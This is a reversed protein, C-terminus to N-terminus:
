QGDTEPQAETEQLDLVRVRRVRNREMHTVIFRKGCLELSDGQEPIRGLQDIFHAAIIKYYDTDMGDCTVRMHEALEDLSIDGSVSWTGDPERLVDPEENDFEDQINGVIAEVIDEMTLIGQWVGYEDIVVCFQQHRKQMQQMLKELPLTEPAYMPQRVLSRLNTCTRCRLVDRMHVFGTINDRNDEYVPFRTHGSEHAEELVEDRLTEVDFAIVDIRHLMIDKATKQYFSFINDLMRGEEKDLQGRQSSDLILMRLEEPSHSQEAESAPPIGVLRLFANSIGNMITVLPLCLLYFVRMPRSLLLVTAEAKQISISKPALEGFVVHLLTIISFGIAVSLSTLLTPSSISLFSLVPRLVSAVAPEGIWGLGLSALTIGLQCVSLYADLHTVGFLASRARKDGASALLELQTKRVKVFAFEAAVFFGNLCVLLVALALMASTYM